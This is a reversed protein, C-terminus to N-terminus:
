WRCGPLASGPDFATLTSLTSRGFEHSRAMRQCHSHVRGALLCSRLHADTNLSWAPLEGLAEVVYEIHEPGPHLYQGERRCRPILAELVDLLDQFLYKTGFYTTDHSEEQIIVSCSTHQSFVVAIGDMINSRAVIERVQDTMDYFTPMAETEIEISEHHTAMTGRRTQVRPSPRAFRPRKVGGVTWRGRRVFVSFTSADDSALFLDGRVEEATGPRKTPITASWTELLEPDDMVHANMPTDILGPICANVRINHPAYDIAMVRMLAAIGGKSASYAHEQFCFGRVACPSGVMVVAGGGGALLHRIGHKLDFNGTLQHGHNEALRSATLPAADEFPSSAANSHRHGSRGWEPPADVAAPAGRTPCM